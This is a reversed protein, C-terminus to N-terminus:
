WKIDEKKVVIQDGWGHGVIYYVRGQINIDYRFDRIVGLEKFLVENNGLYIVGPELEEMPNIITYYKSWDKAPQVEVTQISAGEDFITYVLPLYGDEKIEVTVIEGLPYVKIEGNHWVEKTAWSVLSGPGLFLAESINERVTIRDVVIGEGPEGNGRIGKELLTNDVFEIRYSQFQVIAPTETNQEPKDLLDMGAMIIVALIMGLSIYQIPSGGQIWNWLSKKEDNAM